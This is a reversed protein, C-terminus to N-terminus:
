YNHTMDHIAASDILKLIKNFQLKLFFFFFFFVAIEFFNAACQTEGCFVAWFTLRRARSSCSGLLFPTNSKGRGKLVEKLLGVIILGM